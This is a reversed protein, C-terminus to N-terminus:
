PPPPERFTERVMAVVDIPGDGAARVFAELRDLEDDTLDSLPMGLVAEFAADVEVERARDPADIAARAELQRLRAAAARNM